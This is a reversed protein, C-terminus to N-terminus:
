KEERLTDIQYKIEKLEEIIITQNLIISSDLQLKLTSSTRESSTRPYLLIQLLITVIILGLYFTRLSRYWMSKTFNAFFKVKEKDYQRGIPDLLKFEKIKKQNYSVEFNESSVFESIKSYRFIFKRQRFRFNADVIWFLFPIAIPFLLYKRLEINSNGIILSISGAWIVISWYKIQQTIVDIRGVIEQIQNIEIKLIDLQCDFLSNKNNIKKTM